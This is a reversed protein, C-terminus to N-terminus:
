GPFLSSFAKGGYGRRFFYLHALSFVASQIRRQEFHRALPLFLSRAVLPHTGMAVLLRQWLPEPLLEKMLIGHLEPDIGRLVRAALGVKEMRLFSQELTLQHHHYGGADRNFKMVFGKKMLRYGWEIDEYGYPPLRPDFREGTELLFRRKLSINGTYTYRWNVTEGHRLLHFANQYGLNLWEMLPTPRPDPPWSVFGLIGVHLDPHREEHWHLHEALLNEQPIIDDGVILLIDGQALEIGANRASGPGGNVKRHIRFPFGFGGIQRIAAETTGDTSGDDVVIVEFIGNPITQLTYAKLCRLLLEKRNFTPIIVSIRPTM